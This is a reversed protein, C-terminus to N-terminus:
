GLIVDWIPHFSIGHLGGKPVTVTKTNLAVTLLQCGVPAVKAPPRDPVDDHLGAWVELVRLKKKSGANPLSCRHNRVFSTFKSNTSM